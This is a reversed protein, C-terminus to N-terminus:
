NLGICQYNVVHGVTGTVTLVTTSASSGTIMPAADTDSSVCVPATAYTQTFTYTITGGAGVTLSGAVDTNSATGTRITKSDTLEGALSVNNGSATIPSDGLVGGAGNTWLALKNTTGTGTVTGGGGAAAWTTVGAGDTQLFEGANGDTTPLTLTWTGAVAAVTVSVTGSTLGSLDIVGSVGGGSGTQFSGPTVLNGSDDVVALSNQLTIGGVGDARLMANDVAGTSGGITGGSGAAAYGACVSGTTCVTGNENPFTIVRNFVTTTPVLSLTRTGGSSLFLGSFGGTTAFGLSRTGNADPVVDGTTLRDTTKNYTLGADGGFAGSDNFQVQTNSGGPTGGGAIIPVGNLLLQGGTCTNIIVNLTGTQVLSAGGGSACPRTIRDIFQARVAPVFHSVLASTVLIALAALNLAITRGRLSSKSNNLQM